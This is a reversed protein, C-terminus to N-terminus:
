RAKSFSKKMLKVKNSRVRSLTVKNSRVKSLRVKSLRVKNSRFSLRVKSLRIYPNIWALREADRQARRSLSLPFPIPLFICGRFNVNCVKYEKKTPTRKLNERGYFINLLHLRPHRGLTDFVEKLCIILFSVFSDRTHFFAVISLITYHLCDM